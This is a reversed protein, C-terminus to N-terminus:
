VIFFLCKAVDSLLRYLQMQIVNNTIAYMKAYILSLTCKLVVTTLIHQWRNLQNM